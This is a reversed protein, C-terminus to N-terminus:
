LPRRAARSAAIAAERGREPLRQADPQHRRPKGAAPQAQDGSGRGALTAAGARASGETKRTNADRDPDAAGSPKNGGRPRADRVAIM